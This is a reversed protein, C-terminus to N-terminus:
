EALWGRAAAEARAWEPLTAFHEPERPVGAVEREAEEAKGSRALAAALEYAIRPPVRGTQDLAARRAQRYSRVAATWDSQAAHERAWRRQARLEVANALASEGAERLIKARRYGADAGLQALEADFAEFLVQAGSDKAECEIRVALAMLRGLDVRSRAQLEGLLARGADVREQDFALTMLNWTAGPHLPDLERVRTWDREAGEQDGLVLATKARQMLAEIRMPRRALVATWAAHVREPRAETAELWRARLTLATVSDPRAELAADIAGGTSGTSLEAGRALPELARAHRLTSWAQSVGSALGLLLLVPLARRVWSPREGVIPGLLAGFVAFCITSSVADHFYLAHVAANAGLALGAAALAADHLEGTRLRRWAARAVLVFFALVGAGILVGCEALLTLYDDHAHEVETEHAVRRQHTSREIEDLRRVAPFERAFQGLGVGRWPHEAILGLTARWLGLRVAIGGTDGPPPTTDQPGARVATTAVPPAAESRVLPLMLCALAALAGVAAFLHTRVVRVGCAAAGLGLVLAVAGALVPVSAAYVLQLVCAALGLWRAGGAPGACLLAGVAAGALAAQSVRGTNGLAGAHGNAADALGVATFAISLAALGLALTRRGGTGLSAGGVLQVLGVLVLALARSGEFDDGLGEIGSGAGLALLPLMMLWWGRAAGGHARVALCLAAPLSALLALAAGTAAPEYCARLLSGPGPWALLAAPLLLLLAQPQEGPRVEAPRADSPDRLTGPDM